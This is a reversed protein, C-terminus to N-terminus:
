EYYGLFDFKNENGAFEDDPQDIYPLNKYEGSPMSNEKSWLFRDLNTNYDQSIPIEFTSTDPLSSGLTSSTVEFSGVSQSDYGPTYTQAQSDPVKNEVSRLTLLKLLNAVFSENSVSASHKAEDPRISSAVMRPNNLTTGEDADHVFHCRTGYQCVGYTHYTRCLETKYRPHRPILRLESLGHAFTCSNGFRFFFNNM